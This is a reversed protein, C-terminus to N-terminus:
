CSGMDHRSKGCLRCSTRPRQCSSSNGQVPEVIIAAVRNPAVQTTFVDEIGALAQDTSIGRFPNPFPTHFVDPAFPGFNQRYPQAFGTLTIGLLYVSRPFRRPLRNYRPPGYTRPRNVANEVAEAGSTLLISKFPQGRGVLANLRRALAVYPEYGAVQFSAHTIRGLRTEIAEM